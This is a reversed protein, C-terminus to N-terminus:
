GEGNVGIEQAQSQRMIASANVTGEVNGCSVSVSFGEGPAVSSAKIPILELILFTAVGGICLKKIDM